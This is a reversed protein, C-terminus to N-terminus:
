YSVAEKYLEGLGVSKRGAPTEVLLRGGDRRAHVHATRNALRVIERGYLSFRRGNVLVLEELTQGDRSFRAWSWEFDSAFRGSEAYAGAAALLVDYHPRGAGAIEFLHGGTAELRRV